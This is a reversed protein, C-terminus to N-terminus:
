VFWSSISLKNIVTNLPLSKKKPTTDTEPSKNNATQSSNETSKLRPRGRKGGGSSSAKSASSTTKELTTAKKNGEISSSPAKEKLLKSFLGSQHSKPLL